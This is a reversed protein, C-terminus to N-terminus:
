PSLLSCTSIGRHDQARACVLTNLGAAASISWCITFPSLNDMSELSIFGRQSSCSTAKWTKWATKDIRLVMIEVFGLRLFAKMQEREHLISVDRGREVELNNVDPYQSLKSLIAPKARRM